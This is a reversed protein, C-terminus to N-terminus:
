FAREAVVRDNPPPSKENVENRNGQSQLYNIGILVWLLYLTIGYNNELTNEFLFSLLFVLHFLLFPLHRYAKRSLLPTFFAGLFLLLGLVGSGAGITLLQNHPMRVSAGDPFRQAYRTQTEQKLDGPGVGVLPHDRLISFGIELSQLRESDSYHEANENFYQELDYRMYGIKNQLSPMLQYALIPLLLVAMLAGAGLWINRQAILVWVATVGMVAYFVVLGSRVSLLHLFTILSLGLIGYIWRETAHFLYFREVSLWGAGIIALVVALSFRIHNSPTAIPQGRLLGENFAEFHLAYNISIGFAAISVVVVFAAVLFLVHRKRFVPVSVFVFPLLLFPAKLRLREWSYAADTSYFMGLLVLLAPITVAAFAPHSWWVRLRRSFEERVRVRKAEADWRFVAIVVSWILVQAVLFEASFIMGVFALIILLLLQNTFTHFPKM